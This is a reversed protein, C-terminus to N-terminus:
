NHPIFIPLTGNDLIVGCGLVPQVANVRAYDFVKKEYDIGTGVQMWFMQWNRNRHWEVGASTHLHWQVLNMWEKVCKKMANGRSGHTYLVGDIIIEQVFQYTDPAEFIEHEDKIFERLLWATKANRYPLLDHNGMCVIAHPFTYYWDQLRLRAKALEGMPNLEEPIKEHYNLSHFDVIDWIFVVTWCNFKKQQERCFELYWDLDWPCHIDWIILVNNKDWKTYPKIKPAVHEYALHNNWVTLNIGRKKFRDIIKQLDDWYDVDERAKKGLWFKNCWNSITGLPVWTEAQIQRNTFGERKLDIVTQQIELKNM